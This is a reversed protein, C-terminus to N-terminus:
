PRKYFPGKIVEARIAKGRVEVAVLSGPKALEAPVYGLAIAQGLTPSKTGSTVEGIRPGCLPADDTGELGCIPYGHRAIGRSLMKLCVLKRSLGAKKQAVLAEKGVFDGAKLKVTWGLGAELPSTSQDIDNGYLCLKAELRLTDRAGLGCAILGSDQASEFIAQWIDYADQAKCYIEFGDEGTYGTRSSIMERGQWQTQAFHFPEIGLVSDNGGNGDNGLTRSWIERARPGQLAILGTADSIDELAVDGDLNDQVWQWDKQRNSANVVMMLHEANYRYVLCDDVIGGDAYCIPSYLVQGDALRAVNNTVLRDVANLAGAGRFVFEGMHSVDFIGAAQRVANHEAVIGSYQIPMEFGAFEVLRAKAEQHARILPTVQV